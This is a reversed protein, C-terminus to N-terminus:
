NAVGHAVALGYAHSWPKPQPVRRLSGIAADIENRLCRAQKLAEGLDNTTLLARLQALDTELYSILRPPFCRNTVM